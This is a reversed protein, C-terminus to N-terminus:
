CVYVQSNDSCCVIGLCGYWGLFSDREKDWCTKRLAEQSSSGFLEEDYHGFWQKESWVFLIKVIGNECYEKVFKSRIDVHKTNNSTTINESLFIAGMNDVRVMVPLRVDIEMSELLRVFFM